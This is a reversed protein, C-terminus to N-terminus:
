NLKMKSLLKEVCAVSVPSLLLIYLFFMMPPNLCKRADDNLKELRDIKKGGEETTPNKVAKIEFNVYHKKKFLIEMFLNPKDM